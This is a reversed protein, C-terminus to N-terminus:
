FLQICHNPNESSVVIRGQSDIAIGKPVIFEGRKEGERGFRHILEGGFSFVCVCNSRVDTILINAAEDLILFFPILVPNGKGKHIMERILKHSYTYLSVCPNRASLVVIEDSTLKVDKAGFVNDIFSNFTLDLNM